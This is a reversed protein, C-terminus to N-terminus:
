SVSITRKGQADPNRLPANIAAEQDKANSNAVGIDTKLIQINHMKVSRFIRSMQHVPRALLDCINLIHGGGGGAVPRANVSNHM